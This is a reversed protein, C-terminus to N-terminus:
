PVDLMFWLYMARGSYGNASGLIIGTTLPGTSVVSRTPYHSGLVDDRILVSMWVLTARGSSASQATYMMKAALLAPLHETGQAGNIVYVPVVSGGPTTIVVLPDVECWEAGAAARPVFVGLLSLAVIASLLYRM